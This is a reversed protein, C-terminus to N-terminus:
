LRYSRLGLKEQVDVEFDRYMPGLSSPEYKLKVTIRVTKQYWKAEVAVVKETAELREVENVQEVCRRLVSM